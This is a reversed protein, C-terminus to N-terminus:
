RTEATRPRQTERRARLLSAHSYEQVGQLPTEPIRQVDDEDADERQPEKEYGAEPVPLHRKAEVEVALQHEEQGEGQDAGDRLIPAAADERADGCGRDGM